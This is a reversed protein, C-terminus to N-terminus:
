ALARSACKYITTTPPSSSSSSQVLVSFVSRTSCPESWKRLNKKRGFISFLCNRSGRMQQLCISLSCNFRRTTGCSFWVSSISTTDTEMWFWKTIQKGLHLHFLLIRTHVRVGYSNVTTWIRQHKQKSSFRKKKKKQRWMLAGNAYQHQTTCDYFTNPRITRSKEFLFVIGFWSHMNWCDDNVANALSQYLHQTRRLVYVQVCQSSKTSNPKNRRTNKNGNSVRFSYHM